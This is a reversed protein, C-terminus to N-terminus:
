SLLPAYSSVFCMSVILYIYDTNVSQVLRNEDSDKPTKRRNFCKCPKWCVQLSENYCLGNTFNLATSACSSMTLTAFNAATTGASCNFSNTISSGIRQFIGKLNISACSCDLVVDSFIMRIINRYALVADRNCTGATLATQDNFIYTSNSTSTPPIIIVTSNTNNMIPLTVNQPNIINASNNVPNDRLDVTINKSESLFPLDISTISNNRLDLYRLSSPTPRLISYPISTFRNSSLDLYALNTFNGTPMNVTALNNHALTVKTFSDLCPFTENTLTTFAQYSLNIERSPLSCLYRPLASIATGFDIITINSFYTTSLLASPISSSASIDSTCQIRVTSSNSFAFYCAGPNM